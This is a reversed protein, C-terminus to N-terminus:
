KKQDSMSEHGAWPEPVLMSMAQPLSRGTLVLLELVNDFTASDSGGPTCIEGIKKLDDGYKPSALMAQRAHMWNRNGRLTNIEGNHAMFRFPHALDWTPFTNTSYRQHVLALASVFREDALDRFFEQVQDALMLGKYVVVKSSLSPVYFFKKQRFQSREIDLELRERVVYLKWDLMDRDVSGRGVFAQLMFPEVERAIRGLHAQDVPVERWGLFQLGEEAVLQEFRRTCYSREGADRPTFVFGMGYEGPAPLEFGIKRCEDRFFDHPIQVLIGAGDGTTPDCGCAGRHTLNVLIQLGSRVIQHSKRGHMDVVFGVGCADHENAPDYLDPQLKASDNFLPNM